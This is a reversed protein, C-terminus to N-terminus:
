DSQGCKRHRLQHSSQKGHCYRRPHTREHAGPQIHKGHSVADDAEGGSFDVFSLNDMEANEQM